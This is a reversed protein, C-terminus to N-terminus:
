SSWKQETAFPNSTSLLLLPSDVSSAATTVQQSWKWIRSPWPPLLFPSRGCVGLPCPWFNYSASELEVEIVFGLQCVIFHVEELSLLCSNYWNAIGAYCAMELGLPKFYCGHIIERSDMPQSSPETRRPQAPNIKVPSEGPHSTDIRLRDTQQLIALRFNGPSPCSMEAAHPRM